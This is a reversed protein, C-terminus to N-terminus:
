HNLSKIAFNFYKEVTSRFLDNNYVLNLDEFEDLDYNDSKIFSDNNLDVKVSSAALYFKSKNLISFITKNENFSCKACYTKGGGGYRWNKKYSSVALDNNNFLGSEILAHSNDKIEIGIKNNNFEMSKGYFYTKEGVSIGKDGSNIFTANDLIINSSMLDLADNGANLFTNNKLYVNSIDIDIADSLSNKFLSHEIKGNSYVIHLMDDVIFSDNFSSHSILFNNINHISVMGSFESINSKFGSGNNFQTHQIYLNESNIFAITGWPKGKINENVVINKGKTGKMSVDNRFFLNVGPDLYIETGPMFVVKNAFIQDKHFTIKNSFHIVDNPQISNSNVSLHFSQINKDLRSINFNRLPILHSNKKIFINKIEHVSFDADLIFQMDKSEISKSLKKFGDFSKSVNLSPYITEDIDVFGNSTEVRFGDFSNNVNIKFVFQNKNNDYFYNCECSVNSFNKIFNSFVKKRYNDMASLASKVSEPDPPNLNPDFYMENLYSNVIEQLIKEIREIDNNLIIKNIQNFYEKQFSKNNFLAEDLKTKIIHQYHEPGNENRWAKSWGVPDWIIPVFKTKWPDYYLRWNHTEDYHYSRALSKFIAFRAFKELDLVENLDTETNKNNIIDLLHNLPEFNNDDYHNNVAVKQWKDSSIFNNGDLSPLGHVKDRTGHTELKYIDGPMMNRNRLFSEDLQEVFYYNGMLSGNIFVRAPYTIPTALDLEEALKYALVNNLNETFKPAILNFSRINNFLKKKSTKIRLSKKNYMWHYGFDGRYKVKVKYLENDNLLHADYYNWGSEPLNNNLASINKKDILIHFDDYLHVDDKRSIFSVRIKNIDTNLQYLYLNSFSLPNNKLIGFSHYMNYTRLFVFSLYCSIIFLIFILINIFRYKLKNSFKLINLM